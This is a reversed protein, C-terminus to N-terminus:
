IFGRLWYVLLGVYEHIAVSSDGLYQAQPVFDMPEWGEILNTSDCPVPTVTLGAKRFAAASRPLHMASDVLLVRTASGLVSKVAMAREHTATSGGEKVLVEAPYGLIIAWEVLGGPEDVRSRLGDSSAGTLIVKGVSGARVFPLGCFLLDANRIGVNTPQESSVSQPPANVLVVMADHQISTAAPPRHYSELPAALVQALPRTTFGYYLVLLLGLVVQASQPWKKKWGILCGAGLGLFIWVEPSLLSKALSYITQM